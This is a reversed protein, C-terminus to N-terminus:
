LSVKARSGSPFRSSLADMLVPILEEALTRKSVVGAIGENRLRQVFMADDDMTLVVLPTHPAVSRLWRVTELIHGRALALDLVIADWHDL